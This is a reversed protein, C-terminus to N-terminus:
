ITAHFVGNTINQVTQNGLEVTTAPNFVGVIVTGAIFILLTFIIVWKMPAESEGTGLDVIIFVWIFIFVFLISIMFLDLILIGANGQAINEALNPFYMFSKQFGENIAGITAVKFVEFITISGSGFSWLDLADRLSTFGLILLLGLSSLIRILSRTAVGM